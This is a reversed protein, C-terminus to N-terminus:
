PQWMGSRVEDNISPIDLIMGPHILDPNNPNPMKSKNAEYLIPWKFPDGYVWSYGAINWLCDKEVAWTRVTYQSPTGSSTDLAIGREALRAIVYEDSLMAFRLAEEAFGYSADYDGYEFTDQALKTLRLSELYYENNRISFHVESEDEENVDTAYYAVSNLSLIKLEPEPLDISFISQVAFFVMILLAITIKRSM